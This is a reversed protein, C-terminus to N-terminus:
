PNQGSRARFFGSVFVFIVISALSTLVFPFIRIVMNKLTTLNSAEIMILFIFLMWASAFFAPCYSYTFWRDWFRAGGSSWGQLPPHKSLRKENRRERDAYNVWSTCVGKDDCTRYWWKDLERLQNEASKIGRQFQICLAIGFVAIAIPLAYPVETKALEKFSFTFAALLFAQSSFLWSLRHNILMNEHEIASRVRKWDAIEVDKFEDFSLERLREIVQEIIAKANNANGQSLQLYQSLLNGKGFFKDRLDNPNSCEAVAQWIEVEIEQPTNGM